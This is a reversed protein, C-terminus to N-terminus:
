VFFLALVVEGFNLKFCNNWLSFNFSTTILFKSPSLSPKSASKTLSLCLPPPSQVTEDIQPDLPRATRAKAMELIQLCLSWPFLKCLISSLLNFPMYGSGINKKSPNQGIWDLHYHLRTTKDSPWDDKAVTSEMKSEFYSESVIHLLLQLLVHHCSIATFLSKKLSKLPSLSPPNQPNPHTTAALSTSACLAAFVFPSILTQTAIIRPRFKM